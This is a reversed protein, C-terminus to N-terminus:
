SLRIDLTSVTASLADSSAAVALAFSSVAHAECCKEFFYANVEFFNQADSDINGFHCFGFYINEKGGKTREVITRHVFCSLQDCGPGGCGRM